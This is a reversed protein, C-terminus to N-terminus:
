NNVGCTSRNGLLVLQYPDFPPSITHSLLYGHAQLYYHCGTVPDIVLWRHATQRPGPDAGSGRCELVPSGQGNLTLERHTTLAKISIDLRWSCSRFKLKQSIQKYISSYFLTLMYRYLALDHVGSEFFWSIVDRSRGSPAHQSLDTRLM